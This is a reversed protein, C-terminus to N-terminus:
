AGKNWSGIEIINGEPDSIMSSHMGWPEDRPAYISTAGAEILRAYERDAEASTPFDIALEFTGNLGDPYSPSQGLLDPLLDRRYMSFRVGENKFEAYPDTGNWDTEFGLIDRYFHVMKNIDSVFIGVMDLRVSMM